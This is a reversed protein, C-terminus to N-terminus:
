FTPQHDFKLGENLRSTWFTFLISPCVVSALQDCCSANGKQTLNGLLSNQMGELYATGYNSGGKGNFFNIFVFQYITVCSIGYHNNLDHHHSFSKCGSVYHQLCDTNPLLSHLLKIDKYSLRYTFHWSNDNCQTWWSDYPYTDLLISAKLICKNLKGKDVHQGQYLGTNTKVTNV